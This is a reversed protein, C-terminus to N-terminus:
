YERDVMNILINYIYPYRNRIIFAYLKHSNYIDNIRKNLNKISYIDDLYSIITMIIEDPLDEM